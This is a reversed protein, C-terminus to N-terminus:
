AVALTEMPIPTCTEEVLTKLDNFNKACRSLEIYAMAGEPIGKGMHHPGGRLEITSYLRHDGDIHHGYNSRKKFGIGENELMALVFTVSDSLFFGRIFDEQM